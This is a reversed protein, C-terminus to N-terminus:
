YEKWQVERQVFGAKVLERLYKSATIRSVEIRHMVHEM